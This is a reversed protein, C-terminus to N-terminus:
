LEKYNDPRKRQLSNKYALLMQNFLDTGLHLQYRTKWIVKNTEKDLFKEANINVENPIDFLDVIDDLFKKKSNLIRASLGGRYNGDGDYFGLLFNLALRGEESSILRGKPNKLKAKGILQRVIRPVQGSNKFDFIGLEKLDYWMTKCGFIVRSSIIQRIRGSDEEVLYIEDFIRAQDYGITDAFREIIIRDERNLKLQIQYHPNGIQSVWGDSCLWRLWYLSESNEYINGFFNPKTILYKQNAYDPLNPNERIYRECLNLIKKSKSELVLKTNTKIINIREKSLVFDDHQHIYSMMGYGYGFIIALDELTTKVSKSIKGLEIQLKSILVTFSIQGLIHSNLLECCHNAKDGFQELLNKKLKKVNKEPLIFDPHDKHYRLKDSVFGGYHGWIISIDKWNCGSHGRKVRSPNLAYMEEPYNNLEEMIEDIFNRARYKKEQNNDEQGFMFPSSKHNQQNEKSNEKFLNLSEQENQYIEQIDMDTTEICLGSDLFEHYASFLEFAPIGRNVINPPKGIMISCTGTQLITDYHYKTLSLSENPNLPDKTMADKQNKIEKLQDKLWAKLFEITTDSLSQIETLDYFIESKTRFVKLFNGYEISIRNLGKRLMNYRIKNNNANDQLSKKQKRNLIKIYAKSLGDLYQSVLQVGRGVSNSYMWGNIFSTFEDPSIANIVNTLKEPPLGAKDYLCANVAKIFNGIFEDIFVLSLKHIPCKPYKNLGFNGFKLPKIKKLYSCGFHPCIAIRLEEVIRRMAERTIYITM